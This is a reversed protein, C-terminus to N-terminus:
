PPRRFFLVTKGPLGEIGYGDIATLRLYYAGPKVGRLHFEGDESVQEKVLSGFDQDLSMQLRYGHANPLRRVTAFLEDGIGRWTPQFVPAPLLPTRVVQGDGALWLGEGDAVQQGAASGGSLAVLGDLVSTTVGGRQARVRFHTGRVGIVGAPTSIQYHGDGHQPMVRSEIGGSMLELLVGGTDENTSLRIRTNSPLVMRSGDGLRLSVFAFPGTTLLEGVELTDGVALPRRGHEANERWARGELHTVELRVSTLKLVMGPRLTRPDDIPNIRLLYRWLDSDGWYHEAISWLTEGPLVRHETAPASPPAEAQARGGLLVMAVMAVRAGALVLGNNLHEQPM